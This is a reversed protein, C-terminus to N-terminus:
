ESGPLSILAELRGSRSARWHLKGGHLRVLDRAEALSTGPAEAPAADVESDEDADGEEGAYIRVLLQKQRDASTFEVHIAEGPEVSADVSRVITDLARLLEGPDGVLVIPKELEPRGVVFQRPSLRAEAARVLEDVLHGLNLARPRLTEFLSLYTLAETLKVIENADELVKQLHSQQVLNVEGAGGELVLKTYGRIAVLPTRLEHALITIFNLMMRLLLEPDSQAPTSIVALV